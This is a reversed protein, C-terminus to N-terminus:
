HPRPKMRRFYAQVTHKKVYIFGDGRFKRRAEELNAREIERKFDRFLKAARNDFQLQTM